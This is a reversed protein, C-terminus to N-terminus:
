VVFIPMARLVHGGAFCTTKYPFIFGIADKSFSNMTRTSQLGRDIVYINKHNSEQKVHGLIAEPLAVDESSYRKDTFVNFYCPLICDFAVSYKVSKKGNKHDIGKVLRSSAESVM